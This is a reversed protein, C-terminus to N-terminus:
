RVGDVHLLTAAVGAEVDEVLRHDLRRQVALRAALLLELAVLLLTM